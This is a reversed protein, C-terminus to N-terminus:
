KMSNEPIMKDEICSSLINFAPMMDERSVIFITDTYCSLAEVLNIGQGSLMTM